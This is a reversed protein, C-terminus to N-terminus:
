AALHWASVPRRWSRAAPPQGKLERVGRRAQSAVAPVRDAEGAFPNGEVLRAAPVDHDIVQFDLPRSRPEEQSLSSGLATIRAM